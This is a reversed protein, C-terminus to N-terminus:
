SCKPVEPAIPTGSFLAHLEERTGRWANADVASFGAIRANSGFQIIDPLRDGLPYSWGPHNDGGDNEYLSSAFGNLNLGYHSVWLAGLGQMSPEGGPMSEWYWRGTYIGPVHYGRRELEAKAAHVDRGSLTYRGGAVSEVDIWVGLDRRGGLQSDIVDVQQAITTGESPARLYWYTSTIMGASEADALHSGFVHDRYTGDCLRIIAFEFGERRAQELSLGNQHESVDLGFITM